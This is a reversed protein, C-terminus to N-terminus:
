RKVRWMFLTQIVLKKLNILGIECDEFSHANRERWLCWMLCLPVMRWILMLMRNGKQERWSGLMEKVLRLMVRVVGFLQLITSWLETAVMCHVFLHDISEGCIKCMYCWKMVIINRKRLNDLTIIKGLTTAWVFFAVRPSVKVKWISKYYVHQM